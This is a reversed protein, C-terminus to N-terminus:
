CLIVKNLLLLHEMADKGAFNAEDSRKVATVPRVAVISRSGGLPRHIEGEGRMQRQFKFSQPVFFRIRSLLETIQSLIKTFFAVNPSPYNINKMILQFFVCLNPTRATTLM